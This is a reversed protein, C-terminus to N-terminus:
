IENFKNKRSNHDSTKIMTKLREAMLKIYPMNPEALRSILLMRKILDFYAQRCIKM